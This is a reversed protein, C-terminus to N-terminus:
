ILESNSNKPAEQQTLKDIIVLIYYIPLASLATFLASVVWSFFHFEITSASEFLLAGIISSFPIAFALAGCALMFQTPGAWLVRDRLVYLIGFNIILVVFIVSLPMGSMSFLVYALLYSMIIARTPSRFMIWYNAITLWLYPAPTYGFVQLWLASQVAGLFIAVIIFSVYNIIQFALERM